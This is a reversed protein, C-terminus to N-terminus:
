ERTQDPRQVALTFRTREPTYRTVLNWPHIGHPHSNIRSWCGAGYRGAGTTPADAPLSPLPALPGIM